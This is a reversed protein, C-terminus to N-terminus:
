AEVTSARCSCTVIVNREMQFLLLLEFLHYVFTVFLTCTLGEQCKKIFSWIEIKYDIKSGLAHTVIVILPKTIRRHYPIM